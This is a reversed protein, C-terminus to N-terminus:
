QISATTNVHLDPFFLSCVREMHIKFGWLDDDQLVQEFSCAAGFNAIGENKVEIEIWRDLQDMMENRAIFAPIVSKSLMKARVVVRSARTSHLLNAKPRSLQRMHSATRM